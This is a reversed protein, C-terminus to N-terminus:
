LQAQQFTATSEFISAAKDQFGYKCMNLLETPRDYFGWEFAQAPADRGADFGFDQM